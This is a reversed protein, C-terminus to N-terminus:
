IDLAKNSERHLLCHGGNRANFFDTRKAAKAQAYHGDNKGFVGVDVPRTLLNLFSKGFGFVINWCTKSLGRHRWETGSQTFDVLVRQAGFFAVCLLIAGGIQAADLVPDNATLQQADLANGIDTTKTALEFSIFDGDIRQQELGM